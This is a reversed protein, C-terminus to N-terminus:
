AIGDPEVQAHARASQGPITDCQYEPNRSPDTNLPLLHPLFLELSKTVLSPDLTPERAARVALGEVYCQIAFARQQAQAATLVLGASGSTQRLWESFEADGLHASCIMAQAIQPDRTAQACMELFLAANMVGPDSVQWSAFLERIRTVLDSGSRLGAIDARREQLLRDIIALIIANKSEFYRYILGASVKAAAAISAMSAAHFGHEIFCKQAADLIRNRQMRAHEPARVKQEGTM